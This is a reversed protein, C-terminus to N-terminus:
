EVRDAHNKLITRLEAACVKLQVAKADYIFVKERERWAHDWSTVLRQLEAVLDHKQQNM